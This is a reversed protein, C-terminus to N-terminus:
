TPCRLAPQFRAALVPMLEHRVRNRMV